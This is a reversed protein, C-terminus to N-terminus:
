LTLSNATLISSLGRLFSIVTALHAAVVSMLVSLQHFLIIQKTAAAPEYEQHFRDKTKKQDM